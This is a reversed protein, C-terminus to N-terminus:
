DEEVLFDAICQDCGSLRYGKGDMFFLRTQKINLSMSHGPDRCVWDFKLEMVGIKPNSSTM